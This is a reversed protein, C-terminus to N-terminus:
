GRQSQIPLLHYLDKILSFKDKLINITVTNINHKMSANKMTATINRSENSLM